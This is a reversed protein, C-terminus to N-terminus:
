PPLYVLSLRPTQEVFALLAKTRHIGANDLVIVLDGQLHQLLHKFFAIVDDGRIARAKTHQFFHGSSAIAGITSLKEWNAPLPFWPRSAGPRGPEGRSVRSASAWRMSISWRPGRPGGKKEVEPRVTEVWTMVRKEDRELARSEPKQPTWGLGHLVKRVHDRHYWIGLLGLVERVRPTTWTPDAFGHAQPGEQLLARLQERQEETMQRPRGTSVTASWHGQKKLREKWTEVTRLSIGFHDAIEQHKHQGANIWELAALRREELQARTRKSPM